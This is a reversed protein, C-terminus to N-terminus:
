GTGDRRRLRDLRAGRLKKKLSEWTRRVLGATERTTERPGYRTELFADTVLDLEPDVIPLKERLYALYERPTMDPPRPFGLKAARECVSLYYYEVLERPGLRSLSIYRLAAPVAAPVPRFLGPVSAAVVRAVERGMRRFLRLVARLAGFPVRLISGPDLGQLWGGRRRWLVNLSYLVLGLAVIWFVLSKVADLPSAGGAPAPPPPLRPPAAPPHPATSASGLHVLSALLYMLYFAGASLYLLAEVVVGVVASVMEGLTMAYSTPLLLAVVAALVVLGFLAEVWRASLAVPVELRDLRWLTRQRVFHAEGLLALGLIIYLLVNAQVLQVSPRRFGVIEGIADISLFQAAGLSALGSCIVLIVAGSVYLQGLHRLPASHDVARWNDEYLQHALTHGEPAIEGEQVRLQNLDQTAAFVVVWVVFLLAVDAIFAFTFFAAPDRIWRVVDSVPSAAPDDLYPLLRALVVIPALLVLWEKFLVAGRALRRSYLFAEVGVVVALPGVFRTPWGPSVALGFQVFGLIFCVAAGVLALPEFVAEAWTTADIEREPYFDPPVLLGSLGRPTAGSTGDPSPM